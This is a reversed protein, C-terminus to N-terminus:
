LNFDKFSEIESFLPNSKDMQQSKLDVNEKFISEQKKKEKTETTTEEKDEKIKEEETKSAEFWSKKTKSQDLTVKELQNTIKDEETSSM